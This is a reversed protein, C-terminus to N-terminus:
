KPIDRSHICCAHEANKNGGRQEKLKDYIRKLYIPMEWYPHEEVVDIIAQGVDTFVFREKHVASQAQGGATDVKPVMAQMGWDSIRKPTPM